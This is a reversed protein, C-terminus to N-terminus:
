TGGRETSTPICCVYASWHRRANSNITNTTTAAHVTSISLMTASFSHFCNCFMYRFVDIYENNKCMMKEIFLIKCSCVQGNDSADHEQQQQEDSSDQSEFWKNMQAKTTLKSGEQPLRYDIPKLLM